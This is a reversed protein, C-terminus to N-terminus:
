RRRYRYMADSAEKRAEKDRESQRKDHLQKGRALGIECKVYGNKFYLSLPVLTLGKQQVMGALKDIERRNLLLKRARLATHNFPGGPLYEPLHCNQLWVETGRVEAYADRMTVAGARLTKVETGRLVLGAEFRELIHYHYTASRNRAIVQIGASSPNQKSVSM